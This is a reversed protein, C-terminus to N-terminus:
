GESLRYRQEIRRLIDFGVVSRPVRESEGQIWSRLTKNNFTENLRVM